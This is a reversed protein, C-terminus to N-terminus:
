GLAANREVSLYARWTRGGHGVATALRQCTADAGSLGGLNGTVSRQSTVFFSAAPGSPTTPGDECAVVVLVAILLPYRRMMEEESENPDCRGFEFIGFSSRVRDQRVAPRCDSRVKAFSKMACTPLRKAM